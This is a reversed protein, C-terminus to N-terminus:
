VILIYKPPTHPASTTTKDAVDNDDDDSDLDARAADDDSRKRFFFCLIKSFNFTVNDICVQCCTTAANTQWAITEFHASTEIQKKGNTREVCCSSLCSKKTFHLIQIKPLTLM